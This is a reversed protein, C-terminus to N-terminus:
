NQVVFFGSWSYRSHGLRISYLSSNSRCTSNWFSHQSGQNHDYNQFRSARATCNCCDSERSTWNELKTQRFITESIQLTWFVREINHFLVPLYCEARIYNLMAKSKKKHNKKKKEESPKSKQPKSEPFEIELLTSAAIKMGRIDRVLIMGFLM